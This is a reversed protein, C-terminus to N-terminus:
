WLNTKEKFFKYIGEENNKGIVYNSKLKLEECSNGMAIGVGSNEILEIDNYNDGFSIVKNKSINERNLLELLANGKKINKMLLQMMWVNDTWTLYTYELENCFKNEVVQEIKKLKSIDGLIVISVIEIKKFNSNIININLEDMYQRSLNHEDEFYTKDISNYHIAVDGFDKNQYIYEVIKKKLLNSSIIQNNQLNEVVAGNHTILYKMKFYKLHEKVASKMRGTAFIVDIKKKELENITKIMLNSLKHNQNLATGDMDFVVLEFKEIDIEKM